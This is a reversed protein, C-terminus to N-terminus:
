LIMARLSSVEPRSPGALGTEQPVVQAATCPCARRPPEKVTSLLAESVRTRTGSTTSPSFHGFCDFTALTDALM